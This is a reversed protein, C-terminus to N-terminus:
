LKPLFSGVVGRLLTEKKPWRAESSVANVSYLKSKAVTLATLQHAKATKLEFQFIKFGDRETEVAAILEAGRSQALKEGVEQPPGLDSVTKGKTVPSTLVTVFELPQILDSWKVDYQGVTAAFENWGSPRYIQFGKNLDRYLEVQGSLNPPPGEALAREPSWAISIVGTLALSLTERRTYTPWNEGSM